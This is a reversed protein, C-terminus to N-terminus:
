LPRTLDIFVRRLVHPLESPLLPASKGDSYVVGGRFKVPKHIGVAFHERGRKTRFSPYSDPMRLTKLVPNQAYDGTLPLQGIKRVSM